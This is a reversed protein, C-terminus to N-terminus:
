NLFEEGFRAEKNLPTYTGGVAGIRYDSLVVCGCQKWIADSIGDKSKFGKVAAMLITRTGECDNQECSQHLAALLPELDKLELCEEEARMIMPHETAKGGDGLLLEEYLKEGPRLGTFVIEMAKDDQGSVNVNHGMLRIIRHALDLIRVPEGMDLLFVDGGKAMGGAQLVLQAAEPITM